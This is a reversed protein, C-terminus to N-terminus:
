FFELLFIKEERSVSTVIILYDESVNVPSRELFYLILM